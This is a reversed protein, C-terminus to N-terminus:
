ELVDELRLGRSKALRSRFIMGKDDEEPLGYYATLTNMVLANDKTVIRAWLHWDEFGDCEPDYGGAEEVASKKYIVTSHNFMNKYALKFWLEEGSINNFNNRKIGGQLKSRDADVKSGIIDLKDNQELENLLFDLHWPMWEDDSDQRAIYEATAILIGANLARSIGGHLVKHYIVREDNLYKRCIEETGDRSGDDVIILRFNKHTQNLVSEIAKGVTKERNYIPMVIDVGTDSLPLDASEIGYNGLIEVENTTLFTRFCHVSVGPIDKVIFLSTSYFGYVEVNEYNSLLDYIEEEFSKDSEIIEANEVNVTVRPHPYYIASGIEELAKKTLKETIKIDKEDIYNGLAQGLFVKITKGNTARALNKPKTDFPIKILKETSFVTNTDFITYHGQSLNIVKELTIENPGVVRDTYRTYMNPEIISTSGDDFTFLKMFNPNFIMHAVPNDLSALYFKDIKINELKERLENPWEKNDIFLTDECFEKMKEAYIKQRNDNSMKLYIGFFKEGTVKAVERAVLVQFPSTCFIINM